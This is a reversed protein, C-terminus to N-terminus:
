RCGRTGIGGELEAPVRRKGVLAKLVSVTRGIEEETNDRGLSFRITGFAAEEPLGLATLVHSITTEGASCASGASASIGRLDLERVLAVGPVGAFSVSLLHPLREVAHGNVRADPIEALIREELLNRLRCLRAAEPGLDRAAIECAKGLGVLGPVNETASRLRGEQRGGFTIPQLQTGKRVYLAGTGKPGYIKHGALSLLDLHFDDVAVPIKGVSQVADTHFLIGSGRTVVGIEKLPQITGIENNAHMVSVLFTKETIARRVSDPDVRGLGDVPLFTVEFGRGALSRCAAEVAPHEIASAILHNRGGEALFATGLIALNDAETGSGTFVIESPDAGILAAVRFRASEVAERALRGERHVSSPNGFHNAFFTMMAGLVEPHVPTTASHDLYIREM